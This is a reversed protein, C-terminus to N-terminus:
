WAGPDDESGECGHHLGGGVASPLVSDRQKTNYDSQLSILFVPMRQDAVTRFSYSM